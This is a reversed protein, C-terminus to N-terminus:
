AYLLQNTVVVVVGQMRQHGIEASVAHLAHEFRELRNCIILRGAKKSVGDLSVAQGKGSVFVIM